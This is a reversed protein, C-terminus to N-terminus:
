QEESVASQVSLYVASFGIAVAAAQFKTPDYVTLLAEVLEPTQDEPTYYITEM